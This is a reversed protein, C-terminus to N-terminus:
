ISKIRKISNNVIGRKYEGIEADTLYEKKDIRVYQMLSINLLEAMNEQTYNKLKTKERIMLYDGYINHCLFLFIFISM